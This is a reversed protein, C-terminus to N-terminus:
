PIDASSKVNKLFDKLYFEKKIKLGRREVTMKIRKGDKGELKKTICELSYTKIGWFGMKRIRDGPLIGAEHAPSGAIVTKVYYEKLDPGAAIIILGSKDFQFQENYKKLPKLYMKQHLYDIIIDFRALLKNGIIGNRDVKEIDFDPLLTIDQFSTLIYKFQFENFNLEKIKGLFGQIEGGLGFGLNGTVVIEPLVLTSDTNTHILLPISAGTDVLLKVEVTNGNLLDLRAKFYPKNKIVDIEIETYDKKPIQYTEPNYLILKKKKYDLRIILGRFFSGGVIGDLTIGLSENLSKFDDELVLLDRTIPVADELEIKVNRSILAFMEQSLDSGLIKIRKSYELGLIDAYTKNFLISYEAGTDFIFKLPLIGKLQVDLIVFGQKFQFPVEIKDKDGLLDIGLHQSNLLPCSCLLILLSKVFTAM